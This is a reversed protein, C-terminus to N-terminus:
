RARYQAVEEMATARVLRNTVGPIALGAVRVEYAATARVFGGPGFAGADVTVTLTGNTLGYGRGVTLGREGGLGVAEGANSALAGARAAERASAAIGLRASQLAGLGVLFTLLLTLIGIGAIM